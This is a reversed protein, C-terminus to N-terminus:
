GLDFLERMTVANREGQPTGAQAKLRVSPEHLLKAIIAKTLAEVADRQSTTSAPSHTPSGNSNTVGSGRPRTM